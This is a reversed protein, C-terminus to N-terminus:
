SRKEANHSTYFDDVFYKKNVIFNTELVKLENQINETISSFMPFTPPSPQYTQIYHNQYTQPIIMM